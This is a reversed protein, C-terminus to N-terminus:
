LENVCQIRTLIYFQQTNTDMSEACQMRNAIDKIIQYAAPPIALLQANTVYSVSNVLVWFVRLEVYLSININM